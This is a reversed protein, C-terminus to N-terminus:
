KLLVITIISIFGIIFMFISIFKKYNFKKKEPELYMDYDMM